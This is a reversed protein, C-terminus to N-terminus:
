CNGNRAIPIGRKRRNRRPKADLVFTGPSILKWDKDSKSCAGSLRAAATLNLVDLSKRLTPHKLLQIM